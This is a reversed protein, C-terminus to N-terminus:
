NRVAEAEEENGDAEEEAKVGVAGCTLLALDALVEDASRPAKPESDIWRGSSARAADDDWSVVFRFPASEERM